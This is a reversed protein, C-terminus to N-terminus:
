SDGGEGSSFLLCSGHSIRFIGSHRFAPIDFYSQCNCSDIDHTAVLQHTGPQLFLSSLVCCCHSCKVKTGELPGPFSITEQRGM